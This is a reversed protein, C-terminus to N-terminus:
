GPTAPVRVAATAATGITGGVASAVTAAAVAVAVAVTGAAVTGAVTGAVAVARAVGVGVGGLRGVESEGLVVKEGRSVPSVELRSAVLPVLVVGRDGACTDEAAGSQEGALVQIALRRDAMAAVRAGVAVRLVRAAVVGGVRVRGSIRPTNSGGIVHDVSSAVPGRMLLERRRQQLVHGGVVLLGEIGDAFKSSIAGLSTSEFESLEWSVGDLASEGPSSVQAVIKDNVGIDVLISFEGASASHGSLHRAYGDGGKSIEVRKPLPLIANLVRVLVRGSTGDSRETCGRGSTFNGSPGLLLDQEVKGTMVAEVATGENDGVVGVAVGDGAADDGTLLRSGNRIWNSGAGPVPGRVVVLVQSIGLMRLVGMIHRGMAVAFGVAVSVTVVVVVMAGMTVLIVVPSRSM